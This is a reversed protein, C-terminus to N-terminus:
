KLCFDVENVGSTGVSLLVGGAVMEDAESVVSILWREDDPSDKM